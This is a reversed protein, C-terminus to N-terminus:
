VGRHVPGPDIPEIRGAPPLARLLLNKVGDGVFYGYADEPHTPFGHAALVRNCSDAIDALSDILTGDLDFLIAQFQM